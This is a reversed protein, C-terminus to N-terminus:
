EIQNEKFAPRVGSFQNQSGNIPHFTQFVRHPPSSNECLAQKYATLILSGSYRTLVQTEWEDVPAGPRRRLKGARLAM